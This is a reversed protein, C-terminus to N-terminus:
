RFKWARLSAAPVNCLLLYNDDALDLSISKSQNPQLGGTKGLSKVQAEIVRQTSYDYPLACRTSGDGGPANRTARGLSSRSPSRERKSTRQDARITMMSPWVRWTAVDNILAVRSPGLQGRRGEATERGFWDLTSSLPFIVYGFAKCLLELAREVGSQWHRMELPFECRRRKIEILSKARWVSSGAFIDRGSWMRASSVRSTKPM